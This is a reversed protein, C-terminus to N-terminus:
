SRRWRCTAWRTTRARDCGGRGTTRAPVGGQVTAMDVNVPCDKRCGKCALCLDLADHVATPGGATASRRTTTGTCCRSCCGPRGRTAHEEERLVQYSPCMVTGPRPTSAASGWVSVGTRGGRVFSGGDDPYGFHLDPPSAAVLEARAPPGRGTRSPTVVKGPNMRNDPDFVAKFRRFATM